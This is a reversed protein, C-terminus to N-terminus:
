HNNKCTSLVHLPKLFVQLTSTNQIQLLQRYNSCPDHGTEAKYANLGM